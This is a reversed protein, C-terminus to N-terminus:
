SILVADFKCAEYCVGCKICKKVDVTHTKKREGAIADSPCVRICAGCGTCKDTKIFYQILEKCVGAPCKMDKIHAEYEDRFYRITSLVPNPATSGLACLSGDIIAQSMTELLDIDGERGRGECINTFIEGMRLLGERCPVCKGCSEEQLFNLFYRAVDVMCSGDDMVIMGGSGMMSGAETLADFDVPLDLLKEPICGGSPGGTQVAKFKRGGPIGGGIEYIIEKLAMGMPVEVLGTNNIKGVLSFIKTGKSNETGIKRYWQSGKNIILPVNAWTEVNNLVTPKDWLGKEVAHIYKDRPEGSRGGISAFLASSEGCVFAGGGRNIKIDFDFGSGLIDKGLLGATRASELAMELHMVALPYEHRVYVFGENSGVAYAGAVMGEIISHPNGEIISRDMYAGPDGEDGNGIVYKPSDHAERCGEWKIGAPFGGGGRGRLGAEKVEKVIEEPSMKFLAKALASYGGIALYDEVSTPDIQGNFGFIIRRQKKYFPVEEERLVKEKTTPDQYLLREVVEGKIITKSIIEPSDESKVQQYFIKQPHIILLPGKECFGHCGTARVEVKDALNQKKVESVLAEKVQICGYGRCGTGACISIVPKQPDRKSQLEKQVSSLAATSTIRRM